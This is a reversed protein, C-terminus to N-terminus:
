PVGQLCLAREAARRNELGQLARGAAFHWALLGDCVGHWNGDLARRQIASGCVVQPGLNYAASVLAAEIQPAPIPPMCRRVAADAKALDRHLLDDCEAQTYTRDQVGGTHGYCVTLTGVVDRYPDPEYGEWHSVVGAALALMGALAGGAILSKNRM